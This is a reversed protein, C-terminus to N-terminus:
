SFADLPLWIVGVEYKGCIREIRATDPRDVLGILLLKASVAYVAEKYALAQGLASKWGVTFKAEVITQSRPLWIDVRGVSCVEELVYPEQLTAAWAACYALENGVKSGVLLKSLERSLLVAPMATAHQLSIGTLLASEVECVTRVTLSKDIESYRSGDSLLALEAARGILVLQVAKSQSSMRRAATPSLWLVTNV